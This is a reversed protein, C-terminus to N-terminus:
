PVYPRNFVRQLTCVVQSNPSTLVNKLRHKRIIHKSKGVAVSSQEATANMLAVPQWLYYLLVERPPGIVTSHSRNVELKRILQSEFTFSNRVRLILKDRPGGNACKGHNGGGYLIM